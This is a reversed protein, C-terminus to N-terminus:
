VFVIEVKGQRQHFGRPKSPRFPVCLGVLPCPAAICQVQQPVCIDQPKCTVAACPDPAVLYFTDTM